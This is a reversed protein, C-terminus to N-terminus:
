FRLCHIYLQLQGVQYQLAKHTGIGLAAPSFTVKVPTGSDGGTELVALGYSTANGLVPM